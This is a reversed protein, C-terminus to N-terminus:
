APLKFPSPVLMLSTTNFSIAALSFPPFSIGTKFTILAAKLSVLSFRLKPKLRGGCNMGEKSSTIPVCFM